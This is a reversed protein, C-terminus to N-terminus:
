DSQAIPSSKTVKREDEEEEEEDEEDTQSNRIAIFFKLIIDILMVASFGSQMINIEPIVLLQLHFGMILTDMIIATLYFVTMVINWVIIYRSNPTTVFKAFWDDCTQVKKEEEIHQNKKESEDVRGGTM